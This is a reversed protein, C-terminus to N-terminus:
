RQNAKKQGANHYSSNAASRHIIETQLGLSNIRDFETNSFLNCNWIATHRELVAMVDQRTLFPGEQITERTLLFWVGSAQQIRETRFYSKAREGKRYNM